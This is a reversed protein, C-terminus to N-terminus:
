SSKLQSKCARQCAAQFSAKTVDKSYWRISSGEVRPFFLEHLEDVLSRLSSIISPEEPLQMSVLSGRRYIEWDLLKSNGRLHQPLKGDCAINYVSLFLGELMSSVTHAQGCLVSLPAAM